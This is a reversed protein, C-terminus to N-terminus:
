KKNTTQLVAHPPLTTHPSGATEVMHASFGLVKSVIRHPRQRTTGVWCGEVVSFRLRESVLRGLEQSLTVIFWSIWDVKTSGRFYVFCSLVVNRVNNKRFVVDELSTVTLKWVMPTEWIDCFFAEQLQSFCWSFGQTPQKQSVWVITKTGEFRLCNSCTHWKKCKESFSVNKPPLHRYALIPFFVVIKLTM